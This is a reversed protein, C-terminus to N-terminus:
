DFQTGIHTLLKECPIDGPNLHINRKAQLIIDGDKFLIYSGYHDKAQLLHKERDCLFHAEDELISVRRNKNGVTPPNKADYVACLIVGEALGNAYFACLVMEGPDYLIEDRNKFTNAQGIALEKSVIKERDSFEVRATCREPYVATIKGYRIIDNATPESRSM